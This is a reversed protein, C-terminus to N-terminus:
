GKRKWWLVNLFRTLYSKLNMIPTLNNKQIQFSKQLRIRNGDFLYGVTFPEQSRALRISESLDIKFHSQIHNLEQVPNRIFNEYNLIYVHSKKAKMVVIRCMLNAIFYYINASIFGKSPQEVNRKAFSKVVMVPDRIVYILYIDYDLCNLLGLARGAYKSSDIVISEDITDFLIGFFTKIYEKYEQRVKRSRWGFLHMFFSSLYEMKRFLQFLREHSTPFAKFLTEEIGKWFRYNESEPSVGRPESRLESFRVLEGCSFINKNNGLVIDIITTGSRGAGLIYIVKEKV